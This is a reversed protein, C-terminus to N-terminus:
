LLKLDIKCFGYDIVGSAPRRAAPISYLSQRRDEGLRFEVVGAALLVGMQKGMNERTRGAVAACETITMERGDALLQIISWRVSSSLAFLASVPDLKPLSAPVAPPNAPLNPSSDSM